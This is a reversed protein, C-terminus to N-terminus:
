YGASRLKSVLEYGDMVPKMIDSIILNIYEKDLVELAQAGDSASKVQYGGAQECLFFLNTDTFDYGARPSIKDQRKYVDKEQKLIPFRYLHALM